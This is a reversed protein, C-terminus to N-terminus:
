DIKMLVDTFVNFLLVVFDIFIFIILLIAHLKVNGSDNKGWQKAPERHTSM